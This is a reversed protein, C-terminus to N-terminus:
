GSSLRPRAAILAGATALAGLAVCSLATSAASDPGGPVAVPAALAVGLGATVTIVTKTVGSAEGARDPDVMGQTAVLTLANGMGLSAGSASIAVVYRLLTDASAAFLLAVASVALSTAMTVIAHDHHVRGALPGALAMLLSPALFAAGAALPTLGRPGQLSFPVVLLLVVTALNAVAGAATLAVFPRNTFLSLNILPNTARSQGRVFVSTLLIAAGLLGGSRISLWGWRPARDVYGALCALLLTVLVLGRIDLDRAPRDCRDQGTRFLSWVAVLAIPVNIWFVARWSAAETLAGGVFPGCATAVGGTGLALGTARGRRDPPYLTTLLALGVPMVLAGGAGQLVRAAILLPLTPALACLLSAVGFLTLGVGLLLRRGALDGLRGSGLMFAGVALLYGSIVWQLHDGAGGLDRGIRPLALNLAFSDLQICFVGLSVAVLAGHRGRVQDHGGAM